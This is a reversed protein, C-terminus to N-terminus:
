EKLLEILRTNEKPKRVSFRIFGNLGVSACERVIIGESKLHEITKDGAKMLFFNADSSVGLEREMRGKEKWIIPMTERLFEFEDDIVKKLFARGASGISWPMRVRRFEEPFGTVYGVRIGPVGYSKTFTRLKIIRDSEPSSYGKVFDMFAEDLVLISETDEVADILPNLEQPSYYKGDPNNPNCFFVVSERDREKEVEETMEELTGCKTIRAGFMRAVREYESYAPEPLVVKRDKMHLLIGTLYIAETAGATVALDEGVMSALQEELEDYYTYEASNKAGEEFVKYIWEPQYPNISISFDIYESNKIRGGHKTNFNFLFPKM